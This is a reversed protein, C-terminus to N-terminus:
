NQPHCTDCLYWNCSRCDMVKESALVRRDCADCHGPGTSVWPQLVHGGPCRWIPPHCDGCLYWNCSRCDMVSEGDHVKQNCGDCRGATAVWPQLRHGAPCQWVRCKRQPGPAGCAAGKVIALGEWLGGVGPQQVSLDVKSFRRVRQWSQLQKCVAAKLACPQPASDHFSMLVPLLGEFSRQQLLRTQAHDLVALTMALLGDLGSRELLDLCQVMTVMPLWMALMTLLARPLFMSLKVGHAQLHLFWTREQALSVFRATGVELLPFGPLWLGRMGQIFAHCRTYAEDQSSSAAAFVAAVINMGQCYGLQPDEAVLRLLIARIRGMRCRVLPECCGTRPLDVDIAHITESSVDRDLTYLRKTDPHLNFRQAMIVQRVVTRLSKKLTGPAVWM